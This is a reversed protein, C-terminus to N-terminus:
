VGSSINSPETQFMLKTATIDVKANSSNTIASQGTAMTSNISSHVVSVDSSGNISFNFTSNDTLGSQVSFYASLIYTKNGANPVSIGLSSFTITNNGADYTGEKDSVDNSSGDLIWKIQGRVYDRTTGSVNIVIKTIHITLSDTTGADTITFDFLNVKQALTNVTSPLSIMTSEDVTTGATLTSDTDPPTHRATNKFGGDEYFQSKFYDNTGITNKVYVWDEDFINYPTSSDCTSDTEHM